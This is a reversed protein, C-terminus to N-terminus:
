TASQCKNLPINCTQGHPCKQCVWQNIKNNFIWCYDSGQKCPKDECILGTWGKDCKCQHPLICTGHPKCQNTGPCKPTDCAPGTWDRYNTCKCKGTKLNCTGHGSCNNPCSRESCNPLTLWGTDCKCKGTKLECTGHGSCNNPCCLSCDPPSCGPNCICKGTKLDCTRNGSCPPDCTVHVCKKEVCKEDGVCPPHCDHTLYKCKGDVCIEDEGGVIAISKRLKKM